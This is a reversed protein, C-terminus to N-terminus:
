FKIVFDVYPVGIIIGEAIDPNNIFALDVAIKESFFRIGYSFLGYYSGEDFPVFWNESVFSARRKFRKMGSVTLIPRGSFEGEYFGWGMGATINNDTNGYTAVGYTIGLSTEDANLFLMGGGAYFNEGIKGSVKPTLFFIPRVDASFTSIIELGGGMSINNTVGVNVSNLFLYSNQYYGEKRNLPIASSSFLYRTPNPNPFWYSGDRRLHSSNVVEIKKINSFPIEIKPISNTSITVETDTKGLFKGVFESGDALFIRYTDTTNFKYENSITQASAAATSLLLICFFLLLGKLTRNSLKM